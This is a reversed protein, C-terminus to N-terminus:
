KKHLKVLRMGEKKITHEIQDIIDMGNPLKQVIKLDPELFQVKGVPITHVYRAVSKILEEKDRLLSYRIIYFPHQHQELGRIEVSISMNSTM